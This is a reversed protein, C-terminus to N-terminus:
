GILKASCTSRVFVKLSLPFFFFNGAPAPSGTFSLSHPVVVLPQAAASIAPTPPSGSANYASMVNQMGQLLTQVRYKEQDLRVREQDVMVKQEKLCIYENLM